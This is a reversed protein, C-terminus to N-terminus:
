NSFSQEHLDGRWPLPHVLQTPDTVLKLTSVPIGASQLQEAIQQRLMTSVEQVVVEVGLGDATAWLGCRVPLPVECNPELVELIDRPGFWGDETRLCFRKKGLLPGTAPRHSLTCECPDVLTRVMDGTDYRLIVTAERFPLFPTLVLSGAEGPRAPQGTDPNIVEMLGRLQDFHLHGVECYSGGFPWVESIGYGEDFTVPGFLVESRRRLGPSSVEGGVTIRELGFDQPGYGLALGTEVLKGLYSPYTFLLNVQKKRGPVAHQKALLALAQAPDVIGTQYVLAGLHRFADMATQNGLLARASTSVQVVDASSISGSRRLGLASLLSFIQTERTTFLTTTGQGTTGTTMTCLTPQFGRRVFAEPHNRLAAKRTLPLEAMYAASFEQANLGCRAFLDAYYATDQAALQVQQRIRREQLRQM